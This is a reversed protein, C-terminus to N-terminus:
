QLVSRYHSPDVPLPCNENTLLPQRLQTLTAESKSELDKAESLIIVELKFSWRAKHDRRPSNYELWPSSYTIPARLPMFISPPSEQYQEEHLGLRTPARARGLVTDASRRGQRFRGHGVIGVNRFRVDCATKSVCGPLRDDFRSRGKRGKMYSRPYSTTGNKIELLTPWSDVFGFDLYRSKNSSRAL